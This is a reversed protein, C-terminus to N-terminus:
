MRYLELCEKNGRSYITYNLVTIEGASEIEDRTEIRHHIIDARGLFGMILAASEDRLGTGPKM